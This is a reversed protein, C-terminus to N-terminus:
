QNENKQPKLAQALKITTGFGILGAGTYLMPELIAHEIKLLVAFICCLIMLGGYVRKSSWKGAESHIEKIILSIRNAM